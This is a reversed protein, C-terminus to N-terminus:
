RSSKSSIEDRSEEPVVVYDCLRQDSHIDIADIEQLGDFGDHETKSVRFWTNRLDRFLKQLQNQRNIRDTKSPHDHLYVPLVELMVIPRSAAILDHLTEAVELEAGEVDIKIIGVNGIPVSARLTALTFVPVYQKTAVRERFNTIVSGSPDTEDLLDLRVIRDRNFLGVPFVTANSFGNVRILRNTYAVCAPNPEIGLYERAPDICKVKALTQGLNAGVDVFMGNRARLLRKLLEVMWPESSLRGPHAGVGWLVPMKYRKGALRRPVSVSLLDFLWGPLERITERLSRSGLLRMAMYSRGPKTFSASSVESSGNEIKSRGIVYM